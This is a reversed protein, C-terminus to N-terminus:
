EGTWATYQSPRYGDIVPTGADQVPPVLYPIEGRSARQIGLSVPPPMFKAYHGNDVSIHPMGTHASEDVSLNEQHNGMNYYSPVWHNGEMPHVIWPHITRPTTEPNPMQPADEGKLWGHPTYRLGGLNDGDWAIGAFVPDGSNPRFGAPASVKTGAGLRPSQVVTDVRNRTRIKMRNYRPKRRKYIRRLAARVPM